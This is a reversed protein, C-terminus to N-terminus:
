RCVSVPQEQGMIRLLMPLFLPSALMMASSPENCDDYVKMYLTMMTHVLAHQSKASLERRGLAQVFAADVVDSSKAISTYLVAAADAPATTVLDRLQLAASECSSEDGHRLALTISPLAATAAAHFDSM